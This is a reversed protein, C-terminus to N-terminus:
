KATLVRTSGDAQVTLAVPSEDKFLLLAGSDSHVSVAEGAKPGGHDQDDFLVQEKAQELEAIPALRMRAESLAARWMILVKDGIPGVTWWWRSELGPLKADAVKCGEATCNLRAIRAAGEANEAWVLSAGNASCVLDSEVVRNFPLEAEAAKSWTGNKYISIAFQTMTGGATPKAGHQGTHGAWTAVAQMQGHQCTHFAGTFKGKVTAREVVKTGKVAKVILAPGGETEVWIIQDGLSIPAGADAKVPLEIPKSAKGKALVFAAYGRDNEGREVALGEHFVNGSLGRAVGTDGTRLDFAALGDETLGAVYFGKPDNVLQISQPSFLL